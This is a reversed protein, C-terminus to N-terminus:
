YDMGLALITGILMIVILRKYILLPANLLLVYISDLFSYKNIGINKSDSLFDFLSFILVWAVAVFLISFFITKIIYKDLIKM